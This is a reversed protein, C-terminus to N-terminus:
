EEVDMKTAEELLALALDLTQISGVAKCYAPYDVPGGSAVYNVMDTRQASLERKVKELPDM